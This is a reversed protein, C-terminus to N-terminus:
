IHCSPPSFSSFSDDLETIRSQLQTVKSVKRDLLDSTSLSACLPFIPDDFTDDIIVFVWINKLLLFIVRKIYSAM